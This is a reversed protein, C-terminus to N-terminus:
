ITMIINSASKIAGQPNHWFKEAIKKSPPNIASGIALEIMNELQDVSNCNFNTFESYMNKIHPNFDYLILNDTVYLAKANITSMHGIYLHAIPFNSGEIFESNKLENYLNKDSRPHLKIKLKYKKTANNLSSIFKLFDERGVMADEVLVTALYCITLEEPRKVNEDFDDLDPSGIIYIKNEDNYYVKSYYKKWYDGYVLAFNSVSIKNFINYMYDHLEVKKLLKIMNKFCSMKNDRLLSRLIKNYIVLKERKSCWIRSVDKLTSRYINVREEGHQMTITKIKRRNGEIIFAYDPVRHAFVVVTDPKVYDIVRGASYEFDCIKIVSDFLNKDITDEDGLLFCATIKIDKYKKRLEITIKSPYRTIGTSDVDFFLINKM